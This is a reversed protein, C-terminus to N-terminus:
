FGNCENNDEKLVHEIFDAAADNSIFSKVIIRNEDYYHHMVVLIQTNKYVSVKLLWEGRRVTIFSILNPYLKAYMM